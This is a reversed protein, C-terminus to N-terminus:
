CCVRYGKPNLPINLKEALQQARFPSCAIYREGMKLTPVKRKGHNVRVVPDESVPDEEINIEEFPV